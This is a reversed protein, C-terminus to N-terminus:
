LPEVGYWRAKEVVERLDGLGEERLISSALFGLPTAMVEERDFYPWSIAEFRIDVEELALKGFDGAVPLFYRYKRKDAPQLGSM